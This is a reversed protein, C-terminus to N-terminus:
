ASAKLRGNKRLGVLARLIFVRTLRPAGLRERVLRCFDAAEDRTYTLEDISWTPFSEGKVAVLAARFEDLTGTFGMGKLVEAHGQPRM